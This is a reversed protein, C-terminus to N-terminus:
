KRGLWKDLGERFFFNSYLWGWVNVSMQCFLKKEKLIMLFVGLAYLLDSSQEKKPTYYLKEVIIHIDDFIASNLFKSCFFKISSNLLTQSIEYFVFLVNAKISLISLFVKIRVTRSSHWHCYIWSVEYLFIFHIEIHIWVGMDFEDNINSLIM